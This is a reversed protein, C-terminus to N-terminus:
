WCSTCTPSRRPARGRAAQWLAARVAAPDILGSTVPASSAMLADLRDHHRALAAIRQATFSGKSRRATLWAPLHPLAARLLPKYAM